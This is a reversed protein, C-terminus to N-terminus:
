YGFATYDEAYRSEIFRVEDTGLVGPSVLMEASRNRHPLSFDAGLLRRLEPLCGEKDEIRLARCRVEGGGSRLREAQPRYGIEANLFDSRLFEGFNRTTFFARSAPWMLFSAAEITKSHKELHDAIDAVAIGENKAWRAVHSGAFNYLSCIRERPRRVLTFMFYGGIVDTGCVREIDAVSSHKDLGFRARFPDNLAHGRPTTGLILDNWALFPDLGVKLSSGGTKHLHVFVFRRSHSVIM